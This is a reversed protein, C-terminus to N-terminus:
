ENRDEKNRTDFIKTTLINTLAICNINSGIVFSIPVIGIGNDADPKERDPNHVDPLGLCGVAVVMSCDAAALYQKKDQIIRAVNNLAEQLELMAKYSEEAIDREDMTSLSEQRTKEFDRNM